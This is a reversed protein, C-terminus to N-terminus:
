HVDLEDWPISTRRNKHNNGKKSKRLMNKLYNKVRSSFIKLPILCMKKAMSSKPPFFFTTNAHGSFTALLTSKIKDAWSNNATLFLVEKEHNKKTQKTPKQM